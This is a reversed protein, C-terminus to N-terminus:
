NHTTAKLLRQRIFTGETQEMLNIKWRELEAMHAKEKHESAIRETFNANAKALEPEKPKSHFVRLWDNYADIAGLYALHCYYEKVSCEVKAPVNEKSGFHKQIQQSTTQPVMKFSKRVCEIKKEALFYRILANAHWLLEGSQEPHFTLWELASIKEEDLPTLTGILQKGADNSQQKKHIADVAHM